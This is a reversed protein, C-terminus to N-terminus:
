RTSEPEIILQGRIDVIPIGDQRHRRTDYAYRVAEFQNGFNDFDEGRWQMNFYGNQPEIINIIASAIIDEAGGVSRCDSTITNGTIDIPNGDTDILQFEKLLYGNRPVSLDIKATM